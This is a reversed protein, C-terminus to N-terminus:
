YSRSRVIKPTKREVRNKFIRTIMAFLSRYRAMKLALRSFGLLKGFERKLEITYSSLNQSSFDNESLCEKIKKAAIIGSMMGTGVGEKYFANAMGAADGVLLFRDGYIKQTGFHFPISWGRWSSQRSAEKFRHAVKQHGHLISQLEDILNINYKQIGDTTGGLSVNVSGDALPFIYFFLPMKNHIMRVEADNHKPLDKVGTFYASVFTSMRGKNPKNKGLKRSVISQVGDAGVVMKSLIEKGDKLTVLIGEDMEKLTKVGNGLESTAYTQSLHSVLFNDFDIRKAYSIIMDRSADEKFEITTEDDIHLKVKKSHLFKPHKLFEQFLEEDLMKLSKYAYLILGDGCTKDRPFSAKDVIFHHIKLKSLMISTSAGSPGAGIICVDTKIM